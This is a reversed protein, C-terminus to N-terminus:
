YCAPLTSEASRVQHRVQPNAPPKPSAFPWVGFGAGAAEGPLGVASHVLSHAALFQVVQAADVARPPKDSGM